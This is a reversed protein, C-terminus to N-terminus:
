AARLLIAPGPRTSSRKPGGKTRRIDSATNVYQLRRRCVNVVAYNGGPNLQERRTNTDTQAARARARAFSVRTLRMLLGAAAALERRILNRRSARPAIFSLPIM